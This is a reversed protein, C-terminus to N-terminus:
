LERKTEFVVREGNIAGKISNAFGTVEYGDKTIKITVKDGCMRFNSFTIHDLGEPLRAIFSFSRASEPRIGLIGEPIIRCFLASEASLHRQSGEPWAEVAYPVREGLLRNGCYTIFADWVEGFKGNMFAGKFAYLNARDWITDKKNEPGKECTLMGNETWLYDSFMAELTGDLRETLGMCMPLCIWARLSDFGKSYRYTKFGHMDDGFYNEIAVALDDAQKRYEEALKPKELRDAIMAILKLGGYALTSTSLNARGDTGFRGELEDSDSSVVGEPLTKRKCYEACWRLAPWMAEYTVRNGNILTYLSGGYLFMAADGRDGAGEWIDTGEAIVSTPIMKYEPGMFPMYQKYANLSAYVGMTDDTLAFWPGAYEVQDNCWTAAYYTMGGPSHILGCKTDFISEGARVKAFKYMTDLLENGTDLAAQSYFDKVRAQRAAKAAKPDHEEIKFSKFGDKADLRSIRASYYIVYEMEEGPLLTAPEADTLNEILYVGKTGRASNQPIGETVTVDVAKDTTNTVKVQEYTVLKEPDPFFCREVKVGSATVSEVTLIGDIVVKTLKESEKEGNLMLTPLRSNDWGIDLTGHTNNPRTRLTPFASYRGLILEGDEKAGYDIISDIGKASFEYNDRHGYDEKKVDWVISDNVIKFYKRM